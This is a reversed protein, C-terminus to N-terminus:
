TALWVRYLVLASLSGSHFSFWYNYRALFVLSGVNVALWVLYLVLASLARLKKIGVAVLSLYALITFSHSFKDFFLYYHCKANTYISCLTVLFFERHLPSTVQVVLLPHVRDVSHPLGFFSYKCAGIAYM